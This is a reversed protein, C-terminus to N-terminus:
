IRFGYQSFITKMQAVDLGKSACINNFLQQPDNGSNYMNIALQLQPNNASLQELMAMPNQSNQVM